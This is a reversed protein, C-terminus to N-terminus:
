QQMSFRENLKEFEITLRQKMTLHFEKNDDKNLKM